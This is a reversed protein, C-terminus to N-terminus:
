SIGTRFIKPSGHTPPFQCIVDGLGEKRKVKLSTRMDALSDKPKGHQAPSVHMSLDRMKVEEIKIDWKSTLFLYYVGGYIFEM